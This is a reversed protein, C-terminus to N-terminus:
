IILMKFFQIVLQILENSKVCQITSEIVWHHISIILIILSLKLPFLDLSIFQVVTYELRNDTTM